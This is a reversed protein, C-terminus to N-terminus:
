VNTICESCNILSNVEDFGLRLHYSILRLPNFSAAVLRPSIAVGTTFSILSILGIKNRYFRAALTCDRFNACVTAAAEGPNLGRHRDLQVHGQDQQLGGRVARNQRDARQRQLLQRASHSEPHHDWVV